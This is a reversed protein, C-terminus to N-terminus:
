RIRALITKVQDALSPDLTQAQEAESRARTKDGMDALVEALLLHARAEKPLAQVLLEAGEKASPLQGAKRFVDVAFIVEGANAWEHGLERSRAIAGAAAPYNKAAAYALALNWHVDKVREEKRVSEELLAVAEDPRGQSIMVQSLAFVLQQRDPSLPWAEELVARARTLATPDFDAYSLLIQSLLIADYVDKRQGHNDDIRAIAWALAARKQDPPYERQTVLEAVERAGDFRLDTKHPTPLALARDYAAMGQVLDGSLRFYSTGVLGLRNAEYPVVNTFVVLAIAALGLPMGVALGMRARAADDTRDERYASRSASRSTDAHAERPPRAAIFALTLFFYLYSSHSDFVTLNQVVYALLMGGALMGEWRRLEGSRIRREITWFAAVFLGLYTIAGVSGTMALVDLLTNHSRDFWTEYASYRYSEPNYHLNFAYYFNEPGYGTLPRDRFSKLAIEWAIFRTRVGGGESLTTRMLKGIGPINEVWPQNRNLYMVGGLCAVALFIGVAWIRWRRERVALWFLLVAATVIIAVLTGRTQTYLIVLAEAGALVALGVRLAQSTKKHFFVIGLFFLHFLLYNALYIYNGLTAWVRGGGPNALFGPHGHEYLAIGTMAISAVLSALFVRRWERMSTYVTAAMLFFVGYHLITYVGTMREHNAWFSRAPDVGLFGALLLAALYAGVAIILPERWRRLRPSVVVLTVFFPLLLEVLIRFSWIKGVVFPFTADTMYVFPTLFAVPLGIQLVRLCIREIHDRLTM